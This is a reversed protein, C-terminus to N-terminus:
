YKHKLKINKQNKRTPYIIRGMFYTTNSLTKKDSNLFHDLIESTGPLGPDRIHKLIESRIHVPCSKGQAKINAKDTISDPDIKPM